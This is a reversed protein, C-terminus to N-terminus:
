DKHLTSGILPIDMHESSRSPFIKFCIFILLIIFLFILFRGFAITGSPLLIPTDYGSNFSSFLFAAMMKFIM